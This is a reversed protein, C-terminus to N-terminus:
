DRHEGVAVAVKCGMLKRGLFNLGKEVPGPFGPYIAQDGERGVRAINGPIQFQGFTEWLYKGTYTNMGTIDVLGRAFIERFKGLEGLMGPDSSDAFRSEIVIM